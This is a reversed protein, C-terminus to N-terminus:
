LNNEKKSIENSKREKDKKYIQMIEEKTLKKYIKNKYLVKNDKLELYAKNDTTVNQKRYGGIELYRRVTYESYGTNEAIQKQTLGQNIYMNGLMKIVDAKSLGYRRKSYAM